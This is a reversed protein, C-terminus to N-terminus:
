RPDICSDCPRYPCRNLWHMDNLKRQCRLTAAESISTSLCSFGTLVNRRAKGKRPVSARTPLRLSRDARQLCGYRARTAPACEGEGAWFYSMLLNLRTNVRRNIIKGRQVSHWRPGAVLFTDTCISYEFVGNADCNNNCHFTLNSVINM